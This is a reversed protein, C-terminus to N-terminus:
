ECLMFIHYMHAGQREPLEADTFITVCYYQAEVKRASSTSSTGGHNSAYSLRSRYYLLGLIVTNRSFVGHLMFM